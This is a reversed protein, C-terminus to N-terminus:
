LVSCNCWDSLPCHVGSCTSLDSQQPSALSAQGPMFVLNSHCICWLQEPHSNSPAANIRVSHMSKTMNEAMIMMVHNKRVTMMMMMMSQHQSVSSPTSACPMLAQPEVCHSCVLGLHYHSTWLHNVVTGENQGEKRCWLCFSLGGWQCLVKPSHIGRLGIIKPSETSPMVRFFCIDKPSSKAVLYTTQLDKWGTWAEKVEHVESGMLNTSTALERFIPLPQIVGWAWLQAPPDQPLSVQGGQCARSFAKPPERQSAKSCADGGELELSTARQSHHGTWTHGRGRTQAYISGSWLLPVAM